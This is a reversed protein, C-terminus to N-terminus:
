ILFFVQKGPETPLYKVFQNHLNDVQKCLSDRLTDIEILKSKLEPILFWNPIYMFLVEVIDCM